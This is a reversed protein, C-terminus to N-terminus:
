FDDEWHATAASMEGAEKRLMTGVIATIEDMTRRGVDTRVVNLAPAVGRKKYLAVTDELEGLKKGTLIRLDQIESGGNETKYSEQLRDLAAGVKAVADTYPQLYPAEGTLVYGRQASEAATVLRAFETLALQRAQADRLRQNALNLRTQGAVAVFFLGTLFGILLLPPLAIYWRGFRGLEEGFIKM